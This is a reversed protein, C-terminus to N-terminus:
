RVPLMCTCVCVSSCQRTYGANPPLRTNDWASDRQEGEEGGEGKGEIRWTEVGVERGRGEGGRM